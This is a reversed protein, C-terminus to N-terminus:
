VCLEADATTHAGRSSLLSPVSPAGQRVWFRGVVRTSSRGQAEGGHLSVAPGWPLFSAWGPSPLPNLSRSSERKPWNLPKVTRAAHAGTLTAIIGLTSKRACCLGHTRLNTTFFRNHLSYLFNQGVRYYIQNIFIFLVEQCVTIVM